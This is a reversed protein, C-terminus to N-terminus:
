ISPVNQFLVLWDLVCHAEDVAILVLNQKAYPTSFLTCWPPKVACEPSMFVTHITFALTLKHKTVMLVHVSLMGFRYKGEAAASFNDNGARVAAVGARHLHSIQQEMLGHLPSIVVGM